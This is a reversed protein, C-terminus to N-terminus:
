SWEIRKRELEAKIRAVLLSHLQSVRSESIGLTTGIDRMTLEEFYYLIILLREQSSFGRLIVDRLDQKQAEVAPDVAREDAPLQLRRDESSSSFSGVNVAEIWQTIASLRDEKVGMAAALEESTPPRGYEQTFHTRTEALLTAQRRSNRTGLDDRRLSDMMAGWIASQAYTTFKVSRDLNFREVARRLGLFGEQVLDGVDVFDPLKRSLQRALAEVLYLYHSELRGRIQLDGTSKYEEWVAREPDPPAFRSATSQHNPTMTTDKWSRHSLDDATRGEIFRTRICGLKYAIPPFIKLSIRSPFDAVGCADSACATIIKKIAFIKEARHNHRCAVRALWRKWLAKVTDQRRGNESIERIAFAFFV